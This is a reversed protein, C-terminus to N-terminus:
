PVEKLAADRALNLETMSEVDGGADPHKVRALRRFASDVDAATAHLGVLGLVERWTRAPPTAPPLQAYGAFAQAVTGVGWREQGRLAEVHKALAWVNDEVYFWRDCALAVPKRDLSFYVAAGPDEPKRQGSRPLGDLRLTVNTSLVVHRGGLSEVQRVLENTAVALTRTSSFKSSQRLSRATRKWGVPWALPYRTPDSL